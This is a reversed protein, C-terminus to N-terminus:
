SRGTCERCTHSAWLLLWLLIHCGCQAPHRMAPARNADIDMEEAAVLSQDTAYPRCLRSTDADPDALVNAAPTHPGSFFGFCFIAVVNRRIGCQRRAIQM